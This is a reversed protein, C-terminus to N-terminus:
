GNHNRSNKSRLEEICSSLKEISHNKLSYNCIQCKKSKAM